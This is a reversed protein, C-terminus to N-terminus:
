CTIQAYLRREVSEAHLIFGRVRCFGKVTLRPQCQYNIYSPRGSASACNEPPKPMTM